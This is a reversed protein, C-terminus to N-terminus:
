AFSASLGRSSPSDEKACGLIAFIGEEDKMQVEALQASRLSPWGTTM